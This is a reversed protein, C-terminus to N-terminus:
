SHTRTTSDLLFVQIFAFIHVFQETLEKWLFTSLNDKMSNMQQSLTSLESVVALQYKHGKKKLCIHKDLCMM